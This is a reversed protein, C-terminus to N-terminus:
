TLFYIHPFLRIINPWLNLWRWHLLFYIFYTVFLLEKCLKKLRLNKVGDLTVTKECIIAPKFWLIISIVLLRYDYIPTIGAYPDVYWKLPGQRRSNIEFLKVVFYGCIIRNYDGTRVYPTSSGHMVPVRWSTHPVSFHICTQLRCTIKILLACYCLDYWAGRTGRDRNIRFQEITNTRVYWLSVYLIYIRISM